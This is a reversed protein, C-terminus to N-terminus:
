YENINQNNIWLRSRESVEAMRSEDINGGCIICGVNKGIIDNKYYRLSAISMAGAPEAIINELGKLELISNCIENEDLIVIDHLFEKCYEFSWKIIPNLSSLSRIM